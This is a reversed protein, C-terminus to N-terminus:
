SISSPGKSIRGGEIVFEYVNDRWMEQYGVSFGDYFFPILFGVEL